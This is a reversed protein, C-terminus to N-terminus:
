LVRYIGAPSSFFISLRNLLYDGNLTGGAGEESVFPRGSAPIDTIRFKDFLRNTWNRM